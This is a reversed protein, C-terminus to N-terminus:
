MHPRQRAANHTANLDDECLVAHLGSVKRSRSRQLASGIIESRGEQSNRAQVSVQRM